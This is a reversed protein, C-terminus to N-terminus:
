ILNLEKKRMKFFYIKIKSAFKRKSAILKIFKININVGVKMQKKILKYM